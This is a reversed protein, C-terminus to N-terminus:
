STQDAAKKKADTRKIRLGIEGDAEDKREHGNQGGPKRRPAGAADVRDYRQPSFSYSCTERRDEEENGFETQSRVQRRFETECAPCCLQWSVTMGLCLKPVLILLLRHQEEKTDM